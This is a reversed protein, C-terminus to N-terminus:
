ILALVILGLLIGPVAALPGYMAGMLAALSNGLHKGALTVGAAAGAAISILASLITWVLITMATLHGSALQQMLDGM